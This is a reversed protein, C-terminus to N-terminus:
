NYVEHSKYDGGTVIGHTEFFKFASMPDGGHCGTDYPDCSMLEAASLQGNFKGKSAICLRDTFVSAASVAQNLFITNSCNQCLCVTNM